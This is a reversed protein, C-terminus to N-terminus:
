AQGGQPNVPKCGGEIWAEIDALRWRVSRGLRVPAPMRGAKVDAAISRRCRHVLRSVDIADILLPPKPCNQPM